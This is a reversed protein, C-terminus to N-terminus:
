SKPAAIDPEMCTEKLRKDEYEMEKVRRRIERRREFGYERAERRAEALNAAAALHRKETMQMPNWVFIPGLGIVLSVLGGAIIVKDKWADDADWSWDRGGGHRAAFEDGWQDKREARYTRQYYARRRELEAAMDPSRWM